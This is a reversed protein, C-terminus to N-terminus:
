TVLGNISQQIAKLGVPKTDGKSDYYKMGDTMVESVDPPPQNKWADLVDRAKPCSEGASHAAKLFDYLPKRYGPYRDPKVLVWGPGNAPADVTPADTLNTDTTTAKVGPAYSSPDPFRWIIRKHHMDLWKNLDDWHVEHTFPNAEGPDLRERMKSDQHHVPLLGGEAADALLRMMALREEEPANRELCNVAEDLTYRGAIHREMERQEFTADEGIGALEKPISQLARNYPALWWGVFKDLRVIHQEPDSLQVTMPHSPFVTKEIGEVVSSLRRDYEGRRKGIDAPTVDQPDIGLSLLIAESVTVERNGPWCAWDIQM